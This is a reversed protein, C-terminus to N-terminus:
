PSTPRSRKTKGRQYKQRLGEAWTKYDRNQLNRQTEVIVRFHDDSDREFTPKSVVLDHIAASLSELLRKKFQLSLLNEVRLIDMQEQAVDDGDNNLPYVWQGHALKNRLEIIPGLDNELMDSLTAYRSYVSHPLVGATLAAKPIKYQRRFGVEVAKQWQKLHTSEARITDRESDNFGKPEYILKRLRCEAWVGLLLAYLRMFSSVTIEDSQSTAARLSRAVRKMARDIEQLNAVHFQYLKKPPKMKHIGLRWFASSFM